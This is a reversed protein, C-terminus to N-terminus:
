GSRTLRLIEAAVAAPQELLALHGAGPLVVTRAGPVHEAVPEPSGVVVPDDAGHLDLVPLALEGARLRGWPSPAAAAVAPVDAFNEPVFAPAHLTSTVQGRLQAALVPDAIRHAFAATDPLGALGGGKLLRLVQGAWDRFAPPAPQGAVLAGLLTLSAVRDPAALALQAAVMGGLSHGVVDARPVDLADLVGLADTTLDALRYGTDPAASGGHGRTDPRLVRRGARLLRDAVPVWGAASMGLGSILLVAPADPPGDDLVHLRVGGRDVQASRYWPMGAMM